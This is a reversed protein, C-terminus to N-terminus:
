GAYFPEGTRMIHRAQAIGNKLTLQQIWPVHKDPFRKTIGFIGAETCNFFWGARSLLELFGELSYKVALLGITTKVRNGYIDGHDFRLENDRFDERDVYYRANDDRFSLEHGVFLIVPCELILFAIATIINFQAMISPFGQGMGNLSGFWKRKKKEFKKDATQLDLFYLPGQWKKLMPPYAFTNAILVIDKTRGMDVADWDRGTSEDGDVTIVYQPQIGNNLLYDLNSSLGCLIFDNDKQIEELIRTQNHIAPSSGCIIATKGKGKGQLNDTAWGTKRFLERNDRLNGIWIGMNKEGTNDSVMSIFKSFDKNKTLYDSTIEM